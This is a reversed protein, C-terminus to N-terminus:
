PNCRYSFGLIFSTSTTFNADTLQASGGATDYHLNIISGNATVFGSVSTATTMAATYASHGGTYGSASNINVFPLGELTAAGTGSKANVNVWMQVTVSNGVKSYIGVQGNAAYTQATTGYKLVPLFTGTENIYEIMWHAATTPAAQLARVLYVGNTVTGTSPTIVTNGGSSKITLAYGGRNVIYFARGSAVSTTPLNVDHAATPSFIQIDNDENVLTQATSSSARVNGIQGTIGYPILLASPSGVSGSAIGNPHISPASSSGPILSM